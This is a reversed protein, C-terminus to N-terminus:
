AGFGTGSVGFRSFGLGLFGSDGVQFGTGSVGM